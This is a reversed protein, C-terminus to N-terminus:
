NSFQIQNIFKLYPHILLIWSEKWHSTYDKEMGYVGYCKDKSTSEYGYFCDTLDKLYKSESEARVFFNNYYVLRLTFRHPERISNSQQKFEELSIKIVEYESQISAKNYNNEKDFILSHNSSLTFRYKDANEHTFRKDVETLVTTLEFLVGTNTDYFTSIRYRGDCCGYNYNIQMYNHAWVKLSHPTRDFYEKFSLIREADTFVLATYNSATSWYSFWLIYNKDTKYVKYDSFGEYAFNKYNINFIQDLDSTIQKPVKDIQVPIAEKQALIDVCLLLTILIFYIAGQKM